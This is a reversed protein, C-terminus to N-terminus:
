VAASKTRRLRRPAGLTATVSPPRPGSQREIGIRPEFIPYFMQTYWPEYGLLPDEPVGFGAPYKQSILATGFLVDWFFLLAGFNGSYHGVGDGEHLAHHAFHTAPTSITRQIIWALPKLVRYRYLFADWRVESHAGATVLGKITAYWIFTEGFGLYVLLGATYHNPFLIKYFFGNREAVRIGMYPASHHGLHLPWLSPSTHVARHYWYQVMDEFVLFALFQVWVPTGALTGAAGPFLRTALLATLVAVVPPVLWRSLAVSGVDAIWDDLSLNRVKYRNLALEALSFGIYILTGISFVTLLQHIM